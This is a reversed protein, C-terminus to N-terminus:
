QISIAASRQRGITAYVLGLLLGYVLYQAFGAVAEITFWRLVSPAQYKAPEALSEYSVVILGVVLAFKVADALVRGSKPLVSFLYAFVAGQVLMSALGMVFIPESRVFLISAYHEVNIVFHSTAQVAFTAVVYALVALVHRAM